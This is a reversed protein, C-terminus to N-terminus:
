KEAPLDLRKAWAWWSGDYNSVKEYGMLRMVFYGFGSRIGGTCLAVIRADQGSSKGVPVGRARLLGEIEVASKLRYDDGLFDTWPLLISGPIHGGRAEGYLVAGKYEEATRNDLIYFGESGVSGAIAETTSARAPDYRAPAGFGPSNEAKTPWRGVPLGLRKWESFGGDLLRARSHGLMELIWFIRGEAGWSAKDGYIVVERGLTVGSAAFVAAAKEATVLMCPAEDGEEVLPGGCGGDIHVAGNIHGLLYRSKSRADVVVVGPEKIRPALDQPSVLLETKPYGQGPGPAADVGSAGASLAAPLLVALTIATVAYILVFSPDPSRIPDLFSRHAVM